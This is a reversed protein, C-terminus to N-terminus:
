QSLLAYRFRYEDSQLFGGVMFRYDQRHPASAGILQQQWFDFGAQEPDRRLYGFYQMTIFGRDYFKTGVASMEPTLIFDEVTHAPDKAGSQLNNILSQKGAPTIGAKACLADVFGTPNTATQLNASLYQGYLSKFEAKNIFDILYADKSARQEAVTQFGNLRAGDLVFEAYRPLRGLLEDYLRYVYFGREQFEDSQFFRQSTDVRDCTQGAPCHNMRDTWFDFGAQEAVRGLFDIYQAKIFFAQDDIPNRTATQADNDLIAVTASAVNNLSLGQANQLTVTFAETPEVYADNIIPIQITKSQEGAAFRLTGVATAYDCRDSAIGNTNTQCPVAGSTDSTRYDVSVASALSGNRSVTLTAIGSTTSESVPFLNTTIGITAPGAACNSLDWNLKIVGIDGGSGGNNYGDVAIMYTTGSIANFTVSSSTDGSTVDDNKQVSTLAGLSTGTYVGLVTDYSSGKTTITISSSSPATWKYWVSRRGGGNDPSHNPEGTEATASVNNGEVSGTCGGIVQANAFDNNLPVPPPPPPPPPPVSADLNYGFSDLAKLDNDTIQFRRNAPIRPDMIGIYTGTIADDRWHSSQRGDGDSPNDRDPNPGGTSLLLENGGSFYVQKDNVDTGKSMVRTASGFNALTAAGPRFRFLDWVAPNPPNGSSGARSTFGLAHGIEHVAVADFDTGAIVGNNDNPDFDYTVGPVTNNFGISAAADTPAADAPALLGTARAISNSVSVLSAEGLDTTVTQSPLSSYLSTEAATSASNILSSRVSTLPFSVVPTSTSGLTNCTQGAPLNACWEQGFRTPGYDVDIYITMPTKIRAEWAAAARIFAAKADPFTDLQPTGRLIITLGTSSEEGGQIDSQNIESKQSLHNIQRVDIPSANDGTPSSGPGAIESLSGDRCTIEGNSYTIVFIDRNDDTDASKLYVQEDGEHAHVIASKVNAPSKIARSQERASVSFSFPLTFILAALSLALLSRTRQTLNYIWARRHGFLPSKASM